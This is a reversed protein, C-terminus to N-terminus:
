IQSEDGSLSLLELHLKKAWYPVSEWYKQIIEKAEESAALGQVRANNNSVYSDFVKGVYRSNQIEKKVEMDIRREGENLELVHKIDSRMNMIESCPDCDRGVINVWVHLQANGGDMVIFGKILVPSLNPIMEKLLISSLLSCQLRDVFCVCIHEKEKPLLLGNMCYDNKVFHSIIEKMASNIDDENSLKSVEKYVEESKEIILPPIVLKARELETGLAVSYKDLPSYYSEETEQLLPSADRQPIEQPIKSPFINDHLVFGGRSMELIRVNRTLMWETIGYRGFPKFSGILKVKTGFNPPFFLSHIHKNGVVWVFDMKGDGVTVDKLMVRLKGYENKGKFFPNKSIKYLTGEVYCIHKGFVDESARDMKQQM